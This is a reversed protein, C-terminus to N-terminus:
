SVKIIMQGSLIDNLHRDPVNIAQHNHTKSGPPSLYITSFGPYVQAIRARDGTLLEDLRWKVGETDVISEFTHSVTEKVTIM